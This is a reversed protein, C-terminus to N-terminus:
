RDTEKTSPHDLFAGRLYRQMIPEYDDTNLALVRAAYEAETEAYVIHVHPRPQEIESGEDPGGERYFRNERLRELLEVGEQYEAWEEATPPTETRSAVLRTFPPGYKMALTDLWMEQSMRMTFTNRRM